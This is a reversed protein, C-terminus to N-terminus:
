LNVDKFMHNMKNVSSTDLNSLDISVINKVQNDSTISFFYDLENPPIKFHIEIKNGAVINLAANEAIHEDNDGNVIYLINKRHDNKFGRSYNADSNYYLTMYGGGDDSLNRNHNEKIEVAESNKIIGKHIIDTKAFSEFLLLIVVFNLKLIM